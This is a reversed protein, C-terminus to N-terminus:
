KRIVRRPTRLYMGNRQRLLYREILPGVLGVCPHLVGVGKGKLDIIGDLGLDGNEIVQYLAVVVGVGFFVQVEGADEPLQAFPRNLLSLRDM